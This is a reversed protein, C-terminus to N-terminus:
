KQNKGEFHTDTEWVHIPVRWDPGYTTALYEDVHQPSLFVMDHFGVSEFKKLSGMPISSIKKPSTPFFRTLIECTDRGMRLVWHPMRRLIGTVFLTKKSASALASECVRFRAHSLEFDMNSNLKGHRYEIPGLQELEEPPVGTNMISKCIKHYSTFHKIKFSAVGQESGPPMSISFLNGIKNLLQVIGPSTDAVVFEANGSETPIYRHLDVRFQGVENGKRYIKVLEKKGPKSLLVEYGAARVQDWIDHRQLMEPDLTSLDFDGDWYLTREHRVAGLLTGFDLWYILGAKDFITKVDRLMDLSGERLKALDITETHSNM